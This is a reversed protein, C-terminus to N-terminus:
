LAMYSSSKCSDDYHYRLADAEECALQASAPRFDVEPFYNRTALNLRETLSQGAVRPIEPVCRPIEPLFKPSVISILRYSDGDGM